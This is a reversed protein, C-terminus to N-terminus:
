PPDLTWTSPDAPDLWPPCEQSEGSKFQTTKNQLHWILAPGKTLVFFSFHFVGPEFRVPQKRDFPPPTFKNSDGIAIDIPRSTANNHGFWVKYRGDPLKQYCDLGIRVIPDEEGHARRYEQVIEDRTRVSSRLLEESERRQEPATANKALNELISRANNCARFSEDVNTAALGSGRSIWARAINLRYADAVLAHPGKALAAEYAAIQKMTDRDPPDNVCYAAYVSEPHDRWIIETVEPTCTSSQQKAVNWVALDAGAPEIVTFTTENSQVPRVLGPQDLIRTLGALLHSSLGHDAVLELRFTGTTRFRADAAFWDDRLWFSVDRTEGPAVVLPRQADLEMTFTDGRLGSYAIFPEGRPPVVQLAVKTPVEMPTSGDNTIWIRLSPVLGPLLAEPEARITLTVASASATAVLLLLTLFLHKM